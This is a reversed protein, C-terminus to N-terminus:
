PLQRAQSEITTALKVDEGTVGGASHTSVTVTLKGSATVDSLAKLAADKGLLEM